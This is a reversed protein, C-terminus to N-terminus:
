RIRLCHTPCREAAGINSDDSTPADLSSSPHSLLESADLSTDYIRGQPVSQRGLIAELSLLGATSLAKPDACATISEGAGVQAGDNPENAKKGALPSRGASRARCAPCAKRGRPLASDPTTAPLRHPRCVDHVMPNALVRQRAGCM